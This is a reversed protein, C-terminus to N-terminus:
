ELSLPIQVDNLRLINLKIFICVLLAANKTVSNNKQMSGDDSHKKIDM